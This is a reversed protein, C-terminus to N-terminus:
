AASGARGGPRPRRRRATVFEARAARRLGPERLVRVATAALARTAVELGALGDPGGARRAFARSHLPARPPAIAVYPHIAPVLHSVNGMDLSGMSRRPTDVTPRHLARLEQRFVEALVRNTRMEDYPLDVPRLIVRAGVTDGAARAAARFAGEVARLTERDRARLTFRAVAREPVINARVGGELIVGALRTGRPLRRPLRRAAAFLGLIADLANIGRGPDAIAHAARGLAVVELSHCALSTTEVRDETSPHFMLAADLGRFLGRRAMVVKGGITEEAPTGFVVISGASPDVLRAAVAAAGCAAAGILNHGCAHGVGPLADYEALLGVCPRGRGRRAVFATPLGAAGLGVRFGRARLFGALLAASRREGLSPEALAFLRGALRAVAPMHRAVAREFEPTQRV